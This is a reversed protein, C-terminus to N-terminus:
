SLECSLFLLIERLFISVGRKGKTGCFGIASDMHGLINKEMSYFYKERKKASGDQIEVSTGHLVNFIKYTNNKM